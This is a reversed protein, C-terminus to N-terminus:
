LTITQDSFQLKEIGRLTNTGDRAAQEDTVTIDTGSADVTYETYNGSFIMTNIGDNGTIDNDFGNVRAGSDKTGTLTIDKLYQSHHTYPISVDFKLSFTGEFGADIRANYTLYSHFFEKDMLEGGMPDEPAIEDRTKAVYLGWMGHTASGQWAGWLGYYVDIVAALYEQSLSNEETLEDIWETAGIGWLNSSLANQQAARIETQFQSAAGPQTNPGDVGIGFDHVLHLIEEYTADRHGYNQNVYWSHGEVQMEEEFLWQGDAHVETRGNDSGNLLLLFAENEAMKNAIASKDAGYQSGPLDTLFHQLVNRARVMQENSIRSQAVIHISGGKPTVIKTYRQFNSRYVSGLSAPVFEIGLSADTQYTPTTPIPSPSPSTTSDKNCAINALIVIAALAAIWGYKIKM